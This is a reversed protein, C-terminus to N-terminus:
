DSSQQLRWPQVITGLALQEGFSVAFGRQCVSLVKLDEPTQGRAGLGAQITCLSEGSYDSRGPTCRIVNLQQQQQQQQQRQPTSQQESGTASSGTCVAYISGGFCRFDDVSSALSFRYCASTLPRRLDVMAISSQGSFIADDESHKLHAYVIHQVGARLPWLMTGVPYGQEQSAVPVDVVCPVSCRFDFLMASFANNVPHEGSCVVSSMSCGGEFGDLAHIHKHRTLYSGARFSVHADPREMPILDLGVPYRGHTRVAVITDEVTLRLDNVASMCSYECVPIYPSEVASSSSHRYLRIKQDESGLCLAKTSLDCCNITADSVAFRQRLKGTGPDLVHVDAHPKEHKNSTEQVESVTIVEDDAIRLDMTLSPPSNVQLTLLDFQPCKRERGRLPFWGNCDRYLHRACNYSHLNASKGWRVRCFFLWIEELIGLHQGDQSIALLRGVDSPCLCQCILVKLDQPLLHLWRFKFKTDISNVPEIQTKLCVRRRCSRSVM